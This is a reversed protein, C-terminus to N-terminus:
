RILITKCWKGDPIQPTRVKLDDRRNKQEQNRWNVSIEYYTLENKQVYDTDKTTEIKKGLSNSM